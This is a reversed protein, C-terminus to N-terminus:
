QSGGAQRFEGTSKALDIECSPGIEINNDRVVKARTDKM